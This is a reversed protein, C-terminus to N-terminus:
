VKVLGWWFVSINILVIIASAFRSKTVCSFFATLIATSLVAVVVTGISNLIVEKFTLLYDRSADVLNWNRLPVLYATYAVTIFVFIACIGLTLLILTLFKAITLQRNGKNSCSLTQDMHTSNEISFINSALILILLLLILRSFSMSENGLLGSLVMLGVESDVNDPNSLFKQNLFDVQEKTMGEVDKLFLYGNIYGNDILVRMEDQDFVSEKLAKYDVLHNEKDSLIEYSPHFMLRLIRKKDANKYLLNVSFTGDENFYVDPKSESSRFQGNEDRFKDIVQDRYDMVENYPMEGKQGIEIIELYNDGYAYKMAEEDLEKIHYEQIYSAYLNKMKLVYEEDAKHANEHKFSDLYRMTEVSSLINGELSINSENYITYYRQSQEAVMYFCVGFTLIVLLINLRNKFIKKFEFLILKRM